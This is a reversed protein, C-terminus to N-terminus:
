FTLSALFFWYFSLNVVWIVNINSLGWYDADSLLEFFVLTMMFESGTIRYCYGCIGADETTKINLLRHSLCM